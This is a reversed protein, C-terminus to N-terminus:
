LNSDTIKLFQKIHTYYLVEFINLVSASNFMKKKKKKTVTRKTASHCSVFTYNTRFIFDMMLSNLIICKCWSM